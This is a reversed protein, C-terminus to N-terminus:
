ELRSEGSGRGRGQHRPRSRPSPTMTGAKPEWCRSRCSRSRGGPRAALPRPPETWLRTPGCRISADPPARFEAGRGRNAAPRGQLAPTPWHPPRSHHPHQPHQRPAPHPPRAKGPLRSADRGSHGSGPPLTKGPRRLGRTRGQLCCPESPPYSGKLLPSEQFDHPAQHLSPVLGPPTSRMGADWGPGLQYLRPFSFGLSPGCPTLTVWPINTGRRLFATPEAKREVGEGQWLADPTM